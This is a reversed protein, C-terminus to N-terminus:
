LLERFVSLEESLRQNLGEPMKNLLTKINKRHEIGLERKMPIHLQYVDGLERSIFMRTNIEFVKIIISRLEDESICLNAGNGKKGVFFEFYEPFSDRIRKPVVAADGLKKYLSMCACVFKGTDAANTFEGNFM